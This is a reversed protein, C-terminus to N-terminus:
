KELNKDETISCGEMTETTVLDPKDTENFSDSYGTMLAAMTVAAVSITFFQNKKM